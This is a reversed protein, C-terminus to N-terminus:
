EAKFLEPTKRQDILSHKAQSYESENLASLEFASQLDMLEKGLTNDTSFSYKPSFSCGLLLLSSLAAVAIKM